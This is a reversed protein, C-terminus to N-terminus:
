ALGTLSAASKSCASGMAESYMIILTKKENNSQKRSFYLAISAFSGCLDRSSM